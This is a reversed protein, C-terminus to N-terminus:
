KGPFYFQEIKEELTKMASDRMVPDAIQNIWLKSSEFELYDFALNSFSLVAINIESPNLNSKNIEFWSAVGSSDINSWSRIASDMDASRYSENNRLIEKMAKSADSRIMQDILSARRKIGQSANFGDPDQPDILRLYDWKEFAQLNDNRGVLEYLNWAKLHGSGALDSALDLILKSEGIDAEQLKRNLSMTLAGEFCDPPMSGQREMKFQAIGSSTLASALQDADFRGFYGQIVSQLDFDDEGKMRTLMEHEDLTASLYFTYLGSDRLQGPSESILEYAEQNKGLACLDAILQDSFRSREDIDQHTALFDRLIEAASESSRIIKVSDRVVRRSDSKDMKHSHDEASQAGAEGSLLLLADNPSSDRLFLAVCGISILLGVGSVVLRKMITRSRM